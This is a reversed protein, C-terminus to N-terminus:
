YKFNMIGNSNKILKFILIWNRSEFEFSKDQLIANFILILREKNFEKTRIGAIRRWFRGEFNETEFNFLM